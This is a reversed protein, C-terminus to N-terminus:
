RPVHPHHVRFDIPRALLSPAASVSHDITNFQLTIVFGDTMASAESALCHDIMTGRDDHRVKHKMMIDYWRGYESLIPVSRGQRNSPAYHSAKSVRHPSYENRKRESGGAPGSTHSSCATSGLFFFLFYCTYEHTHPQRKSRPKKMDTVVMVSTGNNEVIQRTKRNKMQPSQM